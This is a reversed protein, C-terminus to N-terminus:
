PSAISIRQRLGDLFLGPRSGPPVAPGYTPNVERPSPTLGHRTARVSAGPM